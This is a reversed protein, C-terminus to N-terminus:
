FELLREHRLLAFKMDGLLDVKRIHLCLATQLYQMDPCKLRWPGSPARLNRLSLYGLRGGQTGLLSVACRHQAQALYTTVLDVRGYGSWTGVM